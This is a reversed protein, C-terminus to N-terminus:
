NRRAMPHDTEDCWLITNSPSSMGRHHGKKKKKDRNSARWAFRLPRFFFFFDRELFPPAAPPAPPASTNMEGSALAWTAMRTTSPM